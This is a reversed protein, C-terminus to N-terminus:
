PLSHSGLGILSFHTSTHTHTQTQAHTSLSHTNPLCLASPPLTQFPLIAPPLAKAQSSPSLLGLPGDRQPRIHHPHCHHHATLHSLLHGMSYSWLSGPNCPRSAPFDPQSGQVQHTRRCGSSSHAQIEHALSGHSPPSLQEFQSIHLLPRQPDTSLDSLLLPLEGREHISNYM